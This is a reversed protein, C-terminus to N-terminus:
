EFVSDEIPLNVIIEDAKLTAKMQPSLPISLSHPFFIGDVEQYDGIGTSLLMEGQPGQVSRSEQVKLGSEVDFYSTSTGGTPDTVLVAYADKGDVKEIGTLELTYGMKDYALESVAYTQSELQNKIEDTIPTVAGMQSVSAEGDNILQRSMVNGGVSTEVLLKGPIKKKQNITLAQGMIDGSYTFELTKIQDLKDKGGLAEFFSNLVDQANLGEPLATKNPDVENGYTDFYKVTGFRELKPAIESAKGVVVIYGKDPNVYENAMATVAAKDTAAISKLYNAYYDEPLDEVATNIAFSAKTQASELSRAFSGSLYNRALAIEEDTINNSRIDKLEHMFEAVASDTVENRVSSSASFRGVVKDDSVNSRAGYTYGHKERLNMNLRSSFAGGLIQNMVRTKIVDPDNPALVVPYTVNIVSQVAQPRDVLAITIDEPMEPMPYTHSPVEGRKWDGFHDKVLKEAEKKTIDGVVAMYAVNPKFYTAYYEKVKEVTINNVTEETIQEGYPHDKGYTLAQAVNSAIANADEKSQALGSLTQKRLKEFEEEPFSPNKVVDAMLEALVEVHRKLSSGYASTASTGLSAGIFDIERDLEDKTRNTTGNRMLQGAMSVYGAMDGELVPDRDIILSITVTPLKNNEVVFVTLGNELTFSDPNEINIEPAPGPEPMKSRDLQAMVPLSLVMMLMMTYLFTKKM